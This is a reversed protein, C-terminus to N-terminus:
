IQQMKKCRLNYKKNSKRVDYNKSTQAKQQMKDCRVEQKNNGRLVQWRKSRPGEIVM